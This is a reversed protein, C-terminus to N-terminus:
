FFLRILAVGGTSARVGSPVSTLNGNKALGSRGEEDALCGGRARATRNCRWWNLIRHAPQAADLLRAHVNRCPEATESQLLVLRYKAVVIDVARHQGVQRGLIEPVQANGRDAM